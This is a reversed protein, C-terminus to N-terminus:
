PFILFIYTALHPLGVFFCKFVLDSTATLDSGSSQSVRPLLQSYFHDFQSFFLNSAIRIQIQSVPQVFKLIQYSTMILYLPTCENVCAPCMAGKNTYRPGFNLQFTLTVTLFNGKAPRIHDAPSIDSGGQLQIENASSVVDMKLLAFCLM